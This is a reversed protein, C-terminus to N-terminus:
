FGNLLYRYRDFPISSENHEIIVSQLKRVFHDRSPMAYEALKKFSPRIILNMLYASQSAGRKRRSNLKRIMKGETLIGPGHGFYLGNGLFVANEGRSYSARPDFDPNNFYVVDGPIFEESYFNTLGLDTDAHWSYIYINSFLKNFSLEGIVNLVSHYYIILMAGACEFAYLSSNRYIDRIAESPEVGQRLQFGGVQTLIWYQPNCRSDEFVAFRARSQNMARAGLMINKRLKLEFALEDPTQYSYVTPSENMVHIIMKEDNGTHWIDSQQFPKGAIQIM